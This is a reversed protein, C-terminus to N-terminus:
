ELLNYMLMVSDLDKAGDIITGNIKTLCKTFPACNKFAVQNASNRALITIDGRILINILIYADSFKCLNSKLVEKRYISKNRVAYNANSQDNIINWKRAM